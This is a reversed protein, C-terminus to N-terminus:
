RGTYDVRAFFTQGVLDVGVLSYRVVLWISRLDGALILGRNHLKLYKRGPLVLYRLLQIVVILHLLGLAVFSCQELILIVHKFVDALDRTVTVLKWNGCVPLSQRSPVIFRKIVGDHRRCIWVVFAIRGRM